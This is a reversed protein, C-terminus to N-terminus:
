GEVFHRCVEEVKGGREIATGVMRCSSGGNLAENYWWLGKGRKEVEERWRQGAAAM